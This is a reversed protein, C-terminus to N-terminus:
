RWKMSSIIHYLDAKVYAIAPALSDKNPPAKFYLAGRVFHNASDTVFFQYDSATEGEFDYAVGFVRKAENEILAENISSAKGIHKMAMSRSDEVHRALDDALAFYSFHISAKISPYELNFWCLSDAYRPHVTIRSLENAEFWFPCQWAATDPGSYIPAPLDIRAYARPKPTATEGCAAAAIILVILAKNM